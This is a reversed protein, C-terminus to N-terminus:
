DPGLVCGVRRVRLRNMARYLAYRPPSSVPRRRRMVGPGNPRRGMEVFNGEPRSRRIRANWKARDAAPVSDNPLSGLRGELEPEIQCREYLLETYEHVQGGPMSARQEPRIM